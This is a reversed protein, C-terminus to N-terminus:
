LQWQPRALSGPQWHRFWRPLVHGNAPAHASADADAYDDPNGDQHPDGYRDPDAYGEPPTEEDAHSHPDSAYWGTRETHRGGQHSRFLTTYSLRARRHLFHSRLLFFLGVLQSFRVRALPLDLLVPCHGDYLSALTMAALATHKPSV